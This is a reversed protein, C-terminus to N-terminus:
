WALERARGRRQEGGGCSLRMLFDKRRLGAGDKSLSELRGPGPLSCETSAVVEEANKRSRGM